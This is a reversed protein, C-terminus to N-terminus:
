YGEAIKEKTILELEKFTMQIETAVPAGTYHFQPRDGGYTVQMDTLVCESIKHLFPNESGMFMYQINFTSPVIMTVSANTAGDFAPMMHFRFRKEIDRILEAETASKPFMKFNFQFERRGIGEFKMELRNNRVRGTAIEIAAKAGPAIQDVATTGAQKLREALQSGLEGAGQGLDISGDMYQSAIDKMGLVSAVMAGIEHEGYQASHGVSVQAPMYLAVTSDAARRPPRPVSLTSIEVNGDTAGSDGAPADTTGTPTEIAGPEFIMPTFHVYHGTRAYTGLDEPYILTAPRGGGQTLRQLATRRSM